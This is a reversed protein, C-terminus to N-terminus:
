TQGQDDKPILERRKLEDELANYLKRLVKKVKRTEWGLDSALQEPSSQTIRDGFNRCSFIYVEDFPRDELTHKIAWAISVWIDSKSLGSFDPNFPKQGSDPETWNYPRCRAPNCDNYFGLAHGTSLFPPKYVTDLKSPSM